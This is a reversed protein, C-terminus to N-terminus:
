LQLAPHRWGPAVDLLPRLVFPREQMLPHPLVLSRHGGGGFSQRKLPWNQVVGKYDVIDLDLTRAGWPRGGRRGARREIAKLLRLLAAPPKSTTVLVVANLYPQQRTQGIAATEYIASRATVAVGERELEALARALTERPTGWPGLCNAGFAIVVNGQGLLQPTM